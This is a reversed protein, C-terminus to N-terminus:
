PPKWSEWRRANLDGHLETRNLTPLVLAKRKFLIIQCLHHSAVEMTVKCLLITVDTKSRSIRKTKIFDTSWKM